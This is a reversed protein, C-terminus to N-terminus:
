GDSCGWRGCRVLEEGGPTGGAGVSGDVGAMPSLSSFPASAQPPRKVKSLGRGAEGGALSSLLTPSRGPGTPLRGSSDGTLWEVSWLLDALRPLLLSFCIKVSRLLLSDVTNNRKKTTKYTVADGATGFPLPSSAL